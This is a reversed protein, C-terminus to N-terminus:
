DDSDVSGDPQKENLGGLFRKQVDKADGTRFIEAMNEIPEVELERIKNAAQKFLLYLAENHM